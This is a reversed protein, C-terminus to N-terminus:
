NVIVRMRGLNAVQAYPTKADGNRNSAVRVAVYYTGQRQFRWSATLDITGKAKGFGKKVFDGTGEFDWEVSTVSGTNPPLEIHANFAVSRGAKVTVQAKGNVALNVVPQIGKRQAATAPVKVQGHSVTYSTEPPPTKGKEVWASLDRLHQEYAGHYSVIRTLQDQPVPESFHDANDTYYLRYNDNFRDGLAERVVGKYWDAHWPFADFDKLSDMVIVKATINGTYTSGGSAGFSITDGILVSRQPYKPQGDANRLYDYGYFGAQTPVQYRHYVSGALWARNDVHVKSGKSLSAIVTSNQEPDIVATKSNKDLQATFQGLTSKGDKSKITFQLGFAPPTSSVKDLAVSVPVNRPDVQVKQVVTDYEYLSKRYFDGLRSKETGLYGDKAWFDNVYTPDFAAVTPPVLVRFTRLFNTRNEAVGAFDEFASLPIGLETVETLVERSVPDLHSFPNMDGGPRVSDIIREKQAELVIGAMARVCFNNPNSVSVAQVFPIAGQWVDFTNEIAGIAVMSGGSGGYVYGYIKADPEKYYEAALTRSIKAVAADARYGGGGAVRNTYGGSDAAFGIEHDDATSNQLPYVMQFFRGDWGSKPFYINFDISTGDFHGSIRRHLTPVTVDTEGDIIVTKYTFDVCDPTVQVVTDKTLCEPGEAIIPSTFADATASFAATACLCSWVQRTTLTLM